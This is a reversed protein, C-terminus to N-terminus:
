GGVLAASVKALDSLGRVDGAMVPVVWLREGGFLQEAQALQPAEAVARAREEAQAHLLQEPRVSA